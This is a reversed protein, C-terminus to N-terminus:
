VKDNVPRDQKEKKRAAKEKEHKRTLTYGLLSQISLFIYLVPLSISNPTLQDLLVGSEDTQLISKTSQIDFIGTLITSIGFAITFGAFIINWVGFPKKRIIGRIILYTMM